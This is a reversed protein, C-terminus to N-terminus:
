QGLRFGLFAPHIWRGSTHSRHVSELRANVASRCQPGMFPYYWPNDNERVPTTKSVITTGAARAECTGATDPVSPEPESEEPTVPTDPEQETDQPDAPTEPAQESDAPTEPDQTEPAAPNQNDQSDEAPAESEPAQQDDQVPSNSDEAVLPPNEGGSNSPMDSSNDSGCASLIFLPLAILAPTKM